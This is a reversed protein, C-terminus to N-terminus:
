FDDNDSEKQEDIWYRKMLLLGVGLAVLFKHEKAWAFVDSMLGEVEGSWKTLIGSVTKIDQGAQEPLALVANKKKAM